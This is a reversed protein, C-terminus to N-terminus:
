TETKTPSNSQLAWAVSSLCLLMGGWELPGPRFHELQISLLV